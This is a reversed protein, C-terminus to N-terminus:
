VDDLQIQTFCEELRQSLAPEDWELSNWWARDATIEKINVADDTTLGLRKLMPCNYFSMYEISPWTCRGFGLLKPTYHLKLVKLNPFVVNEGTAAPLHLNVDFHDDSYKDTMDDQIVICELSVCDDIMLEELNLLCKVMSCTFLFRLKPNMRVSVCKLMDFSGKGIVRHGVIISKLSYLSNISLYELRPLIIDGDQEQHIIAWVKPCDSLICIKLANMNDIGFESLLHLSLHHDLYLSTARKLVEVVDYPITEGNVFRLCRESCSHMSEADKTVLSVARKFDHGVIFNFKTVNGDVWSKNEQLFHSLNKIACFHFYFISLMLHTVEKIINSVGVTWRRDGPYVFIGLEELQLSSIIGDGIVKTPLNKYETHNVTGHFSVKLSKLNSLERTTDPLNLLKTGQLDLVLLSILQGIASPLTILHECDRVLLVQLSKLQCLSDPLSRIRTNSLDLNTLSHMSSFFNTPIVRLYPNRQLFLSALKPCSPMSPISSFENDMLFIATAEEWESLPPSEKLHADVKILYKDFSHIDGQEAGLRRLGRRLFIQRGEITSSLIALASNRIVDHMKVMMTKDNGELLSAKILQRVIDRARNYAAMTTGDLLGENIFCKALVSVHIIKNDFLLACYLFCRKMDCAKLRDYCYKIHPNLSDDKDGRGPSGQIQAALQWEEVSSEGSLASGVALIILRSYWCNDVVVKAYPTIEPSDIVNGVERNFLEWADSSSISELQIGGVAFMKRTAQGGIQTNSSMEGVGAVYDSMQLNQMDNNLSSSGTVEFNRQTQESAIEKSCSVPLEDSEVPEEDSPKPSPQYQQQHYPSAHSENPISLSRLGPQQGNRQHTQSNQMSQSPRVCNGQMTQFYYSSSAMDKLSPLPKLTEVVESMLPRAKPDRSLCHAALQVAKQAEKNSFHGELRPDILRYFRRCDRLHPRAWEVLNHEGNPRSKDMSRRGTIMELLVVGFSYVDSRSTLHGTMVYEPAAYGYTGMVRTSVHTKGEEPGDKALRFDSLKANYEADLLINSTKFDRYIVPKEAEEHLFALGKAAGLAIKM